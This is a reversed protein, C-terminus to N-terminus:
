KLPNITFGEKGEVLLSWLKNLEENHIAIWAEIIKRQKVPMNGELKNGQLDFVAKYQNYSTHIHPLRHQKIDIAYMRIIIGYFRSIEPM